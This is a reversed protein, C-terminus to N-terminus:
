EGEDTQDLWRADEIRRAEEDTMGETQARVIILAAHTAEAADDGFTDIGRFTARLAGDASAMARRILEGDPHGAPALTLASEWLTVRMVLMQIAELSQVAAAVLPTPERVEEPLEKYVIGNLQKQQNFLAAKLSALTSQLENTHKDGWASGRQFARDVARQYVEMLRWVNTAYALLGDVTLRLGKKISM